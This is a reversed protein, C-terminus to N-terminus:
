KPQSILCCSNLVQPPLLDNPPHSFEKESKEELTPRLSSGNLVTQDPRSVRGSDRRRESDGNRGCVTGM